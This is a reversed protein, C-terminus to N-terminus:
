WRDLYRKKIRNLPDIPKWQSRGAALCFFFFDRFFPFFRFFLQLTPLLDATSHIAFPAIEWRGLCKGGKEFVFDVDDASPSMQRRFKGKRPADAFKDKKGKKVWIPRSTGRNKQDKKRNENSPVCKAALIAGEKPKEKVNRQSSKERQDRGFNSNRDSVSFFLVCCFLLLSLSLSLFIYFLLLSRGSDLKKRSRTEPDGRKQGGKESM